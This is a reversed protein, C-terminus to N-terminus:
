IGGYIDLVSSIIIELIEFVISFLTFEKIEVLIIALKNKYM